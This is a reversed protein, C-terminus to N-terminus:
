KLLKHLLDLADATAHLRKSPAVLTAWPVREHRQLGSLDSGAGLNYKNSIVHMGASGM